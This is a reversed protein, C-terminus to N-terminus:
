LRSVNWSLLKSAPPLDRNLTRSPNWPTIIPRCERRTGPAAVKCGCPAIKSRSVNWVPVKLAPPHLTPVRCTGSHFVLTPVATSKSLRDEWYEGVVGDNFDFLFHELKSVQHYQSEKGKPANDQQEVKFEERTAGIM